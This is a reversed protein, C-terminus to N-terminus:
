VTISLGCRPATIGQFKAVEHTKKKLGGRVNYNYFMFFIYVLGKDFTAYIATLATGLATKVKMQFKELKTKVNSWCESIRLNKWFLGKLEM